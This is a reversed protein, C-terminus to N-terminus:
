TVFLAGLAAAARFAAFGLKEVRTSISSRGSASVSSSPASSRGARPRRQTAVRICLRQQRIMAQRLDLFLDPLLVLERVVGQEERRDDLWRLRIAQLAVEYELGLMGVDLTEGKPIDGTDLVRRPQEFLVDPGETKFVAEIQRKTGEVHCGLLVLAVVVLEFRRHVLHGAIAHRSM